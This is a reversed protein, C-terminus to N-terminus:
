AAARRRLFPHHYASAFLFLLVGQVCWTPLMRWAELHGSWVAAIETALLGYIVLITLVAVFRREIPRRYAWVLLATWGLMLSAGYGMAFRYPGSADSFGWLLSAMGPVLMPVLALADTIAGLLFARRLLRAQRDHM